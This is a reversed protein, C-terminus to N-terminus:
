HIFVSEVAATPLRRGSPWGVERRESARASLIKGITDVFRAVIPPSQMDFERSLAVYETESLPIRISWINPVHHGNTTHRYSRGALKLKIENFGFDSYAHCLVEWCQDSTTAVALADRFTTLQIEANLLRRFTHARMIRRATEFEAYGVHQIGVWAAACFLVAIVGGYREHFASQLLSLVAGLGCVGYILLAVSRPTLGRALLKHHIHGRDAGFIPQHRLFRRIVALATDLLPVSLAMLPATMGLITVSKATWLLSYCGLLFGIFLSGCDGLFVTAPSFNYRLFGLLAGALPATALALPVNHQLLAAMLTTLSALLGIGAALGDVGDILNFANTCGVLWLITAPLTWWIPLQYGVIGTLHIGAAFATVAAALQGLLKQWHKLGFVDDLLGTVFVLAAAPFLRWVLSLHDRVIKGGQLSFCLLIAFSGLCAIVIPVGGIRPIPHTHVKRAQDPQDLLGWRIALDRCLPTLVFAAAFAATALIFLLNM